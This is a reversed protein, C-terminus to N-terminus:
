SSRCLEPASHRPSPFKRRLSFTTPGMPIAPAPSAFTILCSPPRRATWRSLSPWRVIRQAVHRGMPTPQPTSFHPASQHWQQAPIAAATGSCRRRGPALAPLSSASLPALGDMNRWFCSAQSWCHPHVPPTPSSHITPFRHPICPRVGPLRHKRAPEGNIRGPSSTAIKGITGRPRDRSLTLRNRM